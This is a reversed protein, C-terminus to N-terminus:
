HKQDGFCFGNDKNRHMVKIQKDQFSNPNSIDMNGHSRSQETDTFEVRGTVQRKGSKVDERTVKIEELTNLQLHHSSIRYVGMLVCSMGQYGTTIDTWHQAYGAQLGCGPKPQWRLSLSSLM